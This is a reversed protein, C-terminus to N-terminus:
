GDNQQEYEKIAILKNTCRKFIDLLKEIDSWNWIYDNLACDDFYFVGTRLCHNTFPSLIKNKDCYEDVMKAAEITKISVADCKRLNSLNQPLEECMFNGNGVGNIDPLEHLKYMKYAYKGNKLETEYESCEKSNDFRKGDEAIYVTKYEMIVKLVDCEKQSDTQM